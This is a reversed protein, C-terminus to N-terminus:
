NTFVTLATETRFSRAIFDMQESLELMRNQPGTFQISYIFGDDAKLYYILGAMPIGGKVYEYSYKTGTLRGEFPQDTGIM